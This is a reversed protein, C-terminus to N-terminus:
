CSSVRRDIARPETSREVAADSTAQSKSESKSEESNRGLDLLSLAERIVAVQEEAPVGMTAWIEGDEEGIRFGVCELLEVGGGRDAVAERIKPNGM